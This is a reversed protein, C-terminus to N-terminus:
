TGTRSNRPAPCPRAGSSTRRTRRSRSQCQRRDRCRQGCRGRDRRRQRPRRRDPARARRWDRWGPDRRGRQPALARWGIPSSGADSSPRGVVARVEIVDAQLADRPARTTLTRRHCRLRRLSAYNPGPRPDVSAIPRRPGHRWRHTNGRALVVCRGRFDPRRVGAMGASSSPWSAHGAFRSAGLDPVAAGLVISRGGYGEHEFFTVQACAIGPLAAFAGVTVIRLITDMALRGQRPRATPPRGPATRGSPRRSPRPMSPSPSSCRWRCCPWRRRTRPRSSWRPAVGADYAPRWRPACLCWRDGPQLGPFGLEPPRSLDNGARKSFALFEATM